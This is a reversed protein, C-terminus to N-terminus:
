KRAVVFISLGFPVPMVRILQREAALIIPFLAASIGQGGDALDSERPPWIKRWLRTLVIAPFLLTNWYTADLITFGTARLLDAIEGRTFRHDTHVAVDHSSYLWQYAPVNIFLLGGRKLIRHAERLAANRDPVGKHYLVDLCFAADFTASPFPAALASAVTTATQGRMRCFRVAEPSFDIGVPSSQTRVALWDLVAGTGCGVDLVCPNSERVHKRWYLDLLARLAAYWWHRDEVRFMLEYEELNM